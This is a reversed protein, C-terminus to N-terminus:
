IASRQGMKRIRHLGWFGALVSIPSACAPIEAMFARPCSRVQSASGFLRLVSAQATRGGTESSSRVLRGAGGPGLRLKAARVGYPRRTGAETGARMAARHPGSRDSFLVSRCAQPYRRWTRLLLRSLRSPDSASPRFGIGYRQILKIALSEAAQDTARNALFKLLGNITIQPGDDRQTAPIQAISGEQPIACLTGAFCVTWTLLTPGAKM